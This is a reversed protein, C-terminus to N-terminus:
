SGDGETGGSVRARFPCQWGDEAKRGSFQRAMPLEDSKVLNPNIDGQLRKDRERTIQQLRAYQGNELLRVFQFHANFVITPWAFRRAWRSSGAHLGVIFFARGALSMFFDLDEPDTSVTPDWAQFPAEIDHLRQLQKWLLSEFDEESGPQPGMFCAFYTTFGDGMRGQEEVFRRLDYGLGHTTADSAMEQYLGFRYTEQRVASRAAVCPFRADLVLARLQGHVFQAVDPASRQDAEIVLDKGRPSAYASNARALEDDLHPPPM